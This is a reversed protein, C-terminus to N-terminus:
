PLKRQTESLRAKSSFIYIYKESFLIIKPFLIIDFIIDISLLTNSIRNTIDITKNYRVRCVTQQVFSLCPKFLSAPLISSFGDSSCVCKNEGLQCPLWLVAERRASSATMISMVYGYCLWLMVEYLMVMSNSWNLGLAAAALTEHYLEHLRVTCLLGYGLSYRM